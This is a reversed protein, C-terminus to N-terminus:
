ESLIFTLFLDREPHNWPDIVGFALHGFRVDQDIYDIGKTCTKKSISTLKIGNPLKTFEEPTFLYLGTEEDWRTM